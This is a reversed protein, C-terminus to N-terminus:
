FKEWWDKDAVWGYYICTQKSRERITGRGSSNSKGGGTKLEGCNIVAASNIYLLTGCVIIAKIKQNFLLGDVQWVPSINQGQWFLIELDRLADFILKQEKVFVFRANSSCFPSPLHLCVSAHASHTNHTGSRTHQLMGGPQWMRNIAEKM